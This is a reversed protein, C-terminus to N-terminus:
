HLLSCRVLSCRVLFNWFFPPSIAKWLFDSLVDRTSDLSRWESPPRFLTDVNVCFVKCIIFISSYILLQRIKPNWVADRLRHVVFAMQHCYFVDDRSLTRHFLGQVSGQFRRHHWAANMWCPSVVMLLFVRSSPDGLSTHGIM